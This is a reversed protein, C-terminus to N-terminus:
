ESRINGEKAVQTWKDRDAKLIASFEAPKMGGADYGLSVLRAKVDDLKLIATVEEYLKDIVNQPTGAPAFLGTWLVVEYGPLGAEVMTPVDPAITTRRSGTVALGRLKGAKLHPATPPADVMVVSVQGGVVAAISQASGKYPVHVLDIGAEKKFLATAVHFPTSGSAYYIQGPKSKALAILEKISNAPVSPHVAIMLPFSAIQTIPAFDKVSDYPLREYTGPNFTMAGSAGVYLTYGDPASKAVHETAIIANAGPKNEVLVPQGVRESLKQGIVRALIDNGGGPPFGVVFKIPKSPYNDARAPSGTLILGAVAILGAIKFLKAM